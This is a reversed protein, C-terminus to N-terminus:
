DRMGEEPYSFQFPFFLAANEKQGVGLDALKQELLADVDRTLPLIQKAIESRPIKIVINTYSGAPQLNCWLKPLLQIHGQLLAEPSHADEPSGAIGAPTSQPM